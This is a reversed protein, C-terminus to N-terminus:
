KVKFWVGIAPVIFSKVITIKATKYYALTSAMILLKWMLRINTPFPQYVVMMTMDRLPSVIQCDGVKETFILSPHIHSVSVFM